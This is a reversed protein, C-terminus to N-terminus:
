PCGASFIQLFISVDFFNWTGSNDFDAIPDEEDFAQLFASVDFFNLTGNGTLDAPSCGTSEVVIVVTAPDSVFQGDEPVPLGEIITGILRYTFTDVGTFGADPTYEFSGDSNLVLDGNAPLAGFSPDVVISRYEQPIDNAMVGQLADITIGSNGSAYADDRALAFVFDRVDNLEELMWEIYPASELPMEIARNIEAHVFDIRDNLIQDLVHFDFAPNAASRPDRADAAEQFEIILQLIDSSRLGLESEGPAARLASRLIESRTMAEPAAITLYANILAVTNDIQEMASTISSLEDVFAANIMPRIIGERYQTLFEFINGLILTNGDSSNAWDGWPRFRLIDVNDMYPWNDGCMNQLWSYNSASVNSNQLDAGTISGFPMGQKLTDWEVTGSGNIFFQYACDQPNSEDWFLLVPIWSFAGFGDGWVDIETQIRRRYIIQMDTIAPDPDADMWHIVEFNPYTSFSGRNLPAPVYADWRLEHAYKPSADLQNLYEFLVARNAHDTGGGSVVRAKEFYSLTPNTVSDIQFLTGTPGWDPSSDTMQSLAPVHGPSYQAFLTEIGTQVGDTDWLDVQAVEEGNTWRLQQTGMESFLVANIEAQLDATQQKYRAVLADFLVESRAANGLDVLANGSEILEDLEPLSENQPDALYDELQSEYRFAFYWPNEKVLQVYASSAQAWPEPGSLPTFTLPALGLSQPLVALDNLYRAIPNASLYQDASTLTVSPNERSGVFAQSQATVTAFTFFDESATIFSPNQNAYALDINNEGRYDLVTNAADTLETLLIDEALGFLASELQSLQSRVIHMDRLIADNQNGLDGIADGIANFGVVMQDYMFNLQQEIRDFRANMEIRMAEVQQRLEILQAYIQEDVGPTNGFAGANDAIGIANSVLGFVGGIASVPDGAMTGATLTAVNAAISLGLQIEAITDSAELLTANYELTAFSYDGLEDLPSQGLLFTAGFMSSRAYSTERLQDRLDAALQDIISQDQALDYGDQLTPEAALADSLTLVRSDIEIQVSETQADVMSVITNSVLSQNLATTYGAYDAPLTLIGANVDDFRPDTNVMGLSPAYGANTLYQNLAMALEPRANGDQTVGYFGYALIQAFGNHHTYRMAIGQGFRVMRRQTAAFNDPAPVVVDLLEAALAGVHTNTGELGPEDLVIFRLATMFNASRLLNPDGSYQSQIAADYSSVFQDLQAQSALPNLQAYASLATVSAVVRPNRDLVIYDERVYETARIADVFRAYDVDDAIGLDIPDAQALAGAWGAAIWGLVAVFQPIHTRRSSANIRTRHFM